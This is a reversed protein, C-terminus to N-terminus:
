GRGIAFEENGPGAGDGVVGGDVGSGDLGGDILKGGLASAGNDNGLTDEDGTSEEEFGLDVQAEGFAGDELTGGIERVEGRLPGTNFAM